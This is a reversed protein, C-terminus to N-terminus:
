AGSAGPAEARAIKDDGRLAWAALLAALLELVLGTGHPGAPGVRLYVNEGWFPGLIRGLAATSQFAGLVEGQETPDTRRSALGLLSPTLLGTGLSVLVVAVFLLPVSGLALFLGFALVLTLIGSLVLRREGLLPVLRRLLGGQVLAATVGVAVFVGAVGSPGFGFRHSLYQAFTAEFSAFATATVLSLVLLAAIGPRRATRALSALSLVEFPRAQTGVPRTEPLRVLAWFFAVLSLGAAFLGPAAPGLHVAFGGIAPGLIFGLGFAMGILGMGRVRDSGTTTDAIVAQATAINGGTAGDLLRSAFLVPLSGAFAFLLYGAATGLLSVLLVPRRGVRDSLRGLLPAFVFQMASYSSMLLGFELPSPRFKEAYLPLLPIVIGFGMLDIFVVLFVVSTPTLRGSRM